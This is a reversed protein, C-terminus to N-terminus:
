VLKPRRQRDLRGERFYLQVGRGIHEIERATRIEAVLAIDEDSLGAGDGCAGPRRAQVTKLYGANVPAAPHHGVEDGMGRVRRCYDKCSAAEVLGDVYAEVAGLHEDHIKANGVRRRRQRIAAFDPIHRMVSGLAADNHPKGIDPM